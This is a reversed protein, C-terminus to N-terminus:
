RISAAWIQRSASCVSAGFMVKVKSSGTSWSRGLVRRRVEGCRMLRSVLMSDVGYMVEVSATRVSVGRAGSVCSRILLAAAEMAALM